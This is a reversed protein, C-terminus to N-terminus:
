TEEFISSDPQVVRDFSLAGVLNSEMDSTKVFETVLIAQLDLIFIILFYTFNFSLM